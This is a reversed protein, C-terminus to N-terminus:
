KDLFRYRLSDKKQEKQAKELGRQIVFSGLSYGIFHLRDYQDLHGEIEDIFEEAVRNIDKGTSYELVWIQGPQKSYQFDAVVYEFTSPSSMLGHIFIYADRGNEYQYVQKLKTAEYDYTQKELFSPKCLACKVGLTALLIQNNEAHTNLDSIFVELVGEKENVNSELLNWQNEKYYFLRISGEEIGEQQAYPFLIRAPIMGERNKEITIIKPIGVIRLSPNAPQTITHQPIEITIKFFPPIWGTLEMKTRGHTIIRQKENIETSEQTQEEELILDQDPTFLIDERKELRESIIKHITRNGCQLNVFDTEKKTIESCYIGFCRLMKLNDYNDPLTFTVDLYEAQCTLQFPGKIITYGEPITVGEPLTIQQSILHHLLTGNLQMCAIDQDPTSSKPTEVRPPPPPLPPFFPRQLPVVVPPKTPITPTKPNGGGGGSILGVTARIRDTVPRNDSVNGTVYNSLGASSTANFPLQTGSDGYHDADTDIIEVLTINGWNNGGGSNGTVSDNYNNNGLPTRDDALITSGTLTNLAFLNGYGASVQLGRSTAIGTIINSTITNNQTSSSTINIQAETNNIFTNNQIISGSTNVGLVLGENNDRLTNNIIRNTRLPPVNNGLNNMTIGHETNNFFTNNLITNNDGELTLGHRTSNSISNNEFTINSERLLVGDQTTNTIINHRIINNDGIISLGTSITIRGNHLIINQNITSNEIDIVIGGLANSTITNNRITWGSGQKPEAISSGIGSENQSQTITNHNIIVNDQGNEFSIQQPPSTSRGNMIIINDTINTRASGNNLIAARSNNSISNNLLTINQSVSIFTGNSNNRIINHSITDRLENYLHIGNGQNDEITSQTIVSDTNSNTM